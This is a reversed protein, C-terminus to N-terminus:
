VSVRGLDYICTSSNLVSEGTVLTNGYGSLSVNNGLQYGGPLDGVINDGISDM